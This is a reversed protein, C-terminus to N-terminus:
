TVIGPLLDRRRGYNAGKPHEPCGSVFRCGGCDDGAARGDAADGTRPGRRPAGRVLRAARRARGGVDVTRERVVGHVLDAWTVRLPRDSAGGPSGSCPRGAGGRARAPRRRAGARGLTSSASSSAATPTACPSTSGDASASAGRRRSPRNTSGTRRALRAAPRRVGRRVLAGGADLVRREEPELDAGLGDFEDLAPAALEAHVDRVAALFADRMRSRHVPDHSRAGGEYEHALRRGCM